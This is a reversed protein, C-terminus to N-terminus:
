HQQSTHGLIDVPLWHPLTIAGLFDADIRLGLQIPHLHNSIGSLAADRKVFFDLLPQSEPVASITSPRAACRDYWDPGASPDLNM